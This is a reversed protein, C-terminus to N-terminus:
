KNQRYRSAHRSAVTRVRISLLMVRLPTTETLSAKLARRPPAGKASCNAHVAKQRAQGIDKLRLSTQNKLVLLDESGGDSKRRQEYPAAQRELLSHVGSVCAEGREVHPGHNTCASSDADGFVTRWGQRAQARTFEASGATSDAATVPRGLFRCIQRM